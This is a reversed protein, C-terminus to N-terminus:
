PCLFIWGAVPCKQLSLDEEVEKLQDNTCSGPAFILLQNSCKSTEIFDNSVIINTQGIEKNLSNSLLNIHNQNFSDGIPVIAISEQANDKLINSLLSISNPWNKSSVSLTKLLPYKIRQMLSKINYIRGINKEVSIALISGLLTGVLFSLAVIRKKVPAVPKDILTPESIISWPDTQRAKELQVSALSSQLSKLLGEYRQADQQLQRYKLLIEPARSLSAELAAIKEKLLIIYKSAPKLRVSKEVLLSELEALREYQIDYRNKRGLVMNNQKEDSFSPVKQNINLQKLLDVQSLSRQDNPMPLGDRNGLGHKLSFAQLKMLSQKSQVTMIGIQKELFILGQTIGKERESGSYKQYAKSIKNIVPIILTQDTDRYALNLVKTGKELTIDINNEQWNFFSWKSVDVGSELKKSKVFDYIPMLISPSELIKVETKLDGTEVMLNMGILSSLDGLSTSNLKNSNNNNNTSMVIQFHGEWLPKATFAYVTGVAVTLSFAALFYVKKRFISSILETIDIEDDEVTSIENPNVQNM